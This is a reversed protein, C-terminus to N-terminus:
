AKSNEPAKDAALIFVPNLARLHCNSGLPESATAQLLSIELGSGLKELALRSKELTGLLVCAIVLRGGPKLKAWALTLLEPNKDLGGGIFVREPSQPSNRLFLAADERIIELNAAGHKRRNAAILGAREPNQEVAYVSGQPLLACAELGVSGCGAGVDFLIQRPHLRLTALVAARVPQKTIIGATHAFESDPIGLYPRVAPPHDADTQEGSSAFQDSLPQLILLAARGGPWDPRARAPFSEPADPLNQDLSAAERL